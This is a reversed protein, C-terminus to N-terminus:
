DRSRCFAVRDAGFEGPKDRRQRLGEVQPAVGASQDADGINLEGAFVAVDDSVPDHHNAGLGALDQAPGAQVLFNDLGKAKGVVVRIDARRDEVIVAFKRQQGLMVLM